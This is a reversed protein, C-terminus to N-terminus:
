RSMRRYVGVAVFILILAIIAFAIPILNTTEETLTTLGASLNSYAAPATDNVELAREFSTPLIIALFFMIIIFGIAIYIINDVVGEMVGKKNSPLFKKLNLM